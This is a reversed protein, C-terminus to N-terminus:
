FSCLWMVPLVPIWRDLRVTLRLSKWNIWKFPCKIVCRIFCKFIHKLTEAYNWLVKYALATGRTCSYSYVIRLWKLWILSWSFQISQGASIIREFACPGDLSRVLWSASRPMLRCPSSLHWKFIRFYPALWSLYGCVCLIIEKFIIWLIRMYRWFNQWDQGLFDFFLADTRVPALNNPQGLRGFKPGARYRPVRTNHLRIGNM